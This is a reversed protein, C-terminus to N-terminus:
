KGELQPLSPRISLKDRLKCLRPQPQPKMFIDVAQDLSPVYLVNLTKAEVRDRVFHFDIEFHRTCRLMCNMFSLSM